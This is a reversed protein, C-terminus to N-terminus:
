DKKHLLIKKFYERESYLGTGFSSKVFILSKKKPLLKNEKKFKELSIYFEIKENSIENKLSYFENGILIIKDFVRQACALVERHHKKSQSGLEKMDGLIAIKFNESNKHVSNIGACMSTKNANYCDWLVTREDKKEEWLEMRGDAPKFQQIRKLAEKEDVGFNKAICLAGMINIFNHNGILSTEYSEGTETNVIEFALQNGKKQKYKPDPFFSKKAQTYKIHQANIHTDATNIFLHGKHTELFDFLEMKTTIIAEQTGFTELHAEGISTIIGHSPQCLSTLRAIDGKEGAGMELVALEHKEKIMLLSLPLGLKSNLNKPTKFLHYKECLLHSVMEKMTTKGNSGTIGIIPIKLKSRHLRALENLTKITDEVLILRKDDKHYKENDIIAYRAGNNLAQEAFRNGDVQEGQIAFFISGKSITRSDFSFNDSRIIKQYIDEIRM